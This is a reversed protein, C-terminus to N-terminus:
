VGKKVAKVKGIVRWKSGVRSDHWNIPIVNGDGTPLPFLVCCAGLVSLSFASCAPRCAFDGLEALVGRRGEKRRDNQAADQPRGPMTTPGYLNFAPLPCSKCAIAWPIPRRKVGSGCLNGM